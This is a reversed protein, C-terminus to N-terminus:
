TEAKYTKAGFYRCFLCASFTSSISVKKVSAISHKQSSSVLRPQHPDCFYSTSSQNEVPDTPHTKPLSACSVSRPTGFVIEPCIRPGFNIRKVVNLPHIEYVLNSQPTAPWILLKWPGCKARPGYTTCAQDLPYALIVFTFNYVNIGRKCHNKPRGNPGISMLPSRPIKKSKKPGHLCRVQRLNRLGFYSFFYLFLLFLKKWLSSWALLSFLLDVFDFWCFLCFKLILTSPFIEIAVVDVDVAAAVVVVVVSFLSSGTPHSFCFYCYVENTETLYSFPSLVSSFFVFSNWNRWLL